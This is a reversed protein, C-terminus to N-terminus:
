LSAEQYGQEWAWTPNGCEGREKCADALTKVLALDDPHMGDIAANFLDEANDADQGMALYLWMLGRLTGKSVNEPNTM